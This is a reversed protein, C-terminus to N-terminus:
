RELLCALRGEGRFADIVWEEAEEPEFYPDCRQCITYGYVQWTTLKGCSWCSRVKGSDSGQFPYREKERHYDELQRRLEQREVERRAHRQQKRYQKPKMLFVRGLLKM